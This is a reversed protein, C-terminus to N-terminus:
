SPTHSIIGRELAFRILNAQTKLGLKHMMSSRHVEVTRRSISLQKAIQANTHGQTVLHLVERERKTLTEYSDQSPHKLQDLYAEIAQQTVTENFYRGGRAVEHVARILDAATCNKNIFGAAGIRLGDLVPVEDDFLALLIVRTGTKGRVVRRTIELGDFNPTKLNVLLIEPKLDEVLRCAELGNATEGLIRIDPEIELLARIGQRVLHRDDGLVVNIPSM